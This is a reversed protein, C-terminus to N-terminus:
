KISSSFIIKAEERRLTPQICAFLIILSPLRQGNVYEVKYLLNLNAFVEVPEVIKRLVDPHIGLILLDFLETAFWANSDFIKVVDKSRMLNDKSHHKKAVNYIEKHM